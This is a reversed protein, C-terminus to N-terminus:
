RRGYKWNRRKGENLWQIAIAIRKRRTSERKAEAIWELYDRQASPPFSDLAVKAERANALAVAFDPHLQPPPKSAHKPIRPADVTAALEAAKRIAGDLEDNPPLDDVSRLKGFQGLAEASAADRRLEQGRWFNLAAHQKFAAIMLLIKGGLTFSPANWKLTEQADPCIAHVRNRVQTLIPRAFPQAHEIYADIRPDQKM